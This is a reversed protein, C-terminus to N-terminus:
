GPLYTADPFMPKFIREFASGIATVTGKFGALADSIYCVDAMLSHNPTGGNLYRQRFTDREGGLTDFTSGGAYTEAADGQYFDHGCLILHLPDLAVGLAIAFSGTLPRRPALDGEWKSRDPLNWHNNQARAGFREMHRMFDANRRATAHGPYWLQPRPDHGLCWARYALVFGPQDEAIVWHDCKWDMCDREAMHWSNVRMVNATSLDLDAVAAACASPGCGSVVLTDIRRPM